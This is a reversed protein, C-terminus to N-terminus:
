KARRTYTIEMVKIEAPAGDPQRLMEFTQTDAGIIKLVDRAKMKKKTNPDIDDGVMTFIKKDADLSGHLQTMSTSMSDFWVNTYKKTNADYGVVGMGNFTSGFFEGKFTEQLFNGGLIMKRTMVGTTEVPAKSPDTYYKVKADFTGELSQLFNHEAGREVKPPGGADKKKDGAQTSTGAAILALLTFLSLARQM